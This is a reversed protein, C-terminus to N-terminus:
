DENFSKWRGALMQVNNELNGGSFRVSLYDSYYPHKNVYIVLPEVRNYLSAFHFDKVM